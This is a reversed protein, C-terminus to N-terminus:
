RMREMANCAGNANDRVLRGYSRMGEPPGVFLLRAVPVPPQGPVGISFEHLVGPTRVTMAGARGDLVIAKVVVSDAVLMDADLQFQQRLRENVAKAMDSPVEAFPLNEMTTGLCTAWERLTHDGAPRTCVACADDLGGVMEPNTM